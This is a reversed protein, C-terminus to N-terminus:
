MLYNGRALIQANPTVQQTQSPESIYCLVDLLIFGLVLSLDPIREYDELPLVLFCLRRSVSLASIIAALASRHLDHDCNATPLQFIPTTFITFMRFAFSSSTQTLSSQLFSVTGLTVCHLFSVTGLTVCYLFPLPLRHTCHLFGLGTM